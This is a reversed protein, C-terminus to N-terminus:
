CTQHRKSIQSASYIVLLITSILGSTFVIQPLKQEPDNLAFGPKNQVNITWTQNQLTVIRTTAFSPNEATFKEDHDYLLRDPTSAAGQYIQFDLYPYPDGIGFIQEFASQSRFAAGIVGVFALKREPVREIPFNARYLPLLFFFGPKGTTQLTVAKTTALANQDRAYEIADRREPFTAFDIGLATERDKLPYGYMVPYRLAQDSQPHITFQQYAYNNIKERRLKTEFSAVESSSVAPIYFYTSVGSKDLSNLEYSSLYTNFAAQAFNHSANWYGRIGELITLHTHLKNYYTNAIQDAQRAFFNELKVKVVQETIYGAVLTATFALLTIVVVPLLSHKPPPTTTPINM